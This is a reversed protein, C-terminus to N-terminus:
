PLLVTRFFRAKNTASGLNTITVSSSSLTQTLLPTWNLLNTSIEVRYTANAAGSFTLNTRSTFSMVPRIPVYLATIVTTQNGGVQVPRNTPTVYGPVARFELTYSGSLLSQASGIANYNTAGQVRWGSNSIPQAMQVILTGATLTGGGLSSNLQSASGGTNNDGTYATNEARNILDAVSGDIARVTTQGGSGGLYIGAPYYVGNTALVCLPGGSMGPYGVIATTYFLRNTGPTTFALNQPTTAHMKNRNADLIGEVPYGILTKSASAQLWETGGPNSALYGSYGGRGADELFYLAAADLNQSAPSSVGPSNDNTRAAAYGGFVYWGRPNQTAPEYEGQHRQFFWNVGTVFALSADNFVVHAATLVVRKKVVTGSGYGVDSLLQGVWPYPPQGASPQSVATFGLVSAPTGPSSASVLYTASILNLQSDGVLAARAAPTDYGLVTKFEVIQSGAVLNALTFGSDHWNTEGQVRWQGVGAPALNVQLSGYATSGSGLYLNTVWTLGGSVPNTTDNPQLYGAVPKFTTAFNGAPLGSIVDDSNRWATEWALRWQSGIAAPQLTVRLSGSHAPVAGPFGVGLFSNTGTPPDDELITVTAVNPSALSSNGDALSLSLTFQRNGTYIPDDVIPITITKNTETQGFSIQGSAAQYDGQGFANVSIASGNATSYNVPGGLTLRDKVITITVNSGNESVYYNNTSLSFSGGPLPLVTLVALSSTVVGAINSVVLKYGNADSFQVNPLSLVNTTSVSPIAAGNTTIWQYSLPSTGSALASITVDSGVRVSQNTPQVAISPPTPFIVNVVKGTSSIGNVIVSLYAFGGPFGALPSSTFSTASWSTNEDPPLFTTQGGEINRLQLLPYGSSNDSHNGGSAGSIGSFGTGTVSTGQAFLSLPSNYTTIQPQWATNFALGVDYQEASTLYFPSTNNAGGVILVKGNPLLSAAHAYRDTNLAGTTTWTGTAPDFLEATATSYPFTGTYGGAILVKGNPLLTASHYQYRPTALSATATWTGTSPDFLEARKGDLYDGGAVLVKGNPLLTATHYYRNTTLNGTAAWTGSAPDYLEASKLPAFDGDGGALLVKGNPLLTATHHGRGANMMGTETWTGIDPKYIYARNDYFSNVVGGAVLVNGDRLLTATHYARGFPQSGTNAWTANNPDFLEATALLATGNYGGVVLIKGNPLLTATHSHRNTTMGGTKTWTVAIPDFIDANTLSSGNYGGAILVKGNTMITASHWQRRGNIAGSSVWTGGASDYLETSSTECTCSSDFQGGAILVRGDPLLTASHWQRATNLTATASWTGGAPDYIEASNTVVGNSGRGGVVLIKGNPLLTATHGNRQRVAPLGTVSWTGLAPDFLESANGGSNEGGTVLVKGNPLLTATHNMRPSALSNTATWLGTAPDYIEVSNTSGFTSGEGGAVLVKGNPLLTATHFARAKKMPGTPSWSENVPDFLFATLLPVGFADRGGAVLVLGNTLLTATHDDRRGLADTVASTGTAPDYLECTGSGGAAILVKGNPLLTATHAYHSTSFNFSSSSSGTAPDYLQASATISGGSNLGGMILVKGNQLLTATHESRASGLGGSATFSAAPASVLTAFMIMSWAALTRAQWFPHYTHPRM